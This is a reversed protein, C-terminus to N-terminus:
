TRFYRWPIKCSRVSCPKPGREPFDVSCPRLFTGKQKFWLTCFCKPCVLITSKPYNLTSDVLSNSLLSRAMSASGLSLVVPTTPNKSKLTHWELIFCRSPQFLGAFRNINSWVRRCDVAGGLGREGSIPQPFLRYPPPAASQWKTQHFVPPHLMHLTATRHM